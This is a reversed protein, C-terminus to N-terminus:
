SSTLSFHHLVMQRVSLLDIEHEVGDYVSQSIWIGTDGRHSGPVIGHSSAESILPGYVEWGLGYGYKLELLIDPFRTIHEGQYIEERRAIFKVLNEGSDLGQVAEPIEKIIRSRISEYENQMLGERNIRIGGYTYAKLGSMDSAYAITDDWNVIRPRTYLKMLGPFLGLARGALKELGLKGVSKAVWRKALETTSITLNRKPDYAKLLGMRRLIENINVVTPPRGGHGHDSFVVLSTQSSINSMFRGLLTDFWQYAAHVADQFESGPEHLPDESDHYNWFFHCIADLTSWYIFMLRWPYEDMIRLAFEGDAFAQARHHALFQRMGESSRDPFGRVGELISKNPYLELAQPPAGQVEAVTTARAVLVGGTDWIPYGMHPFVAHARVGKENLDDFFTQGQLVQNDIRENQILFSKKLPDVFRVIGHEAPNMGTFITAWATDSDPPFTSVVPLLVSEDILRRFNPLDELFEDLLIRDLADIGLMLLKM